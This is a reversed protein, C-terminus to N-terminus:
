NSMDPGEWWAYWVHQLAHMISISLWPWVQLYHPDQSGLELFSTLSWSLKWSFTREKKDFISTKTYIMYQIEFKPLSETVVM